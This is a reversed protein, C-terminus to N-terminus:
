FNLYKVGIQAIQTKIILNMKNKPNKLNIINLECEFLGPELKIKEFILKFIIDNFIVKSPSFLLNIIKSQNSGISISDDNQYDILILAPHTKMVKCTLLAETINKLEFQVPINNNGKFFNTKFFFKKIGYEISSIEIVPPIIQGFSLCYNGNIIFAKSVRM